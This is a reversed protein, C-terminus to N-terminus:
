HALSLLTFATIALLCLGFNATIAMGSSSSPAPAVTSGPSATSSSVNAVPPLPPDVVDAIELPPNPPNAPSQAVFSLQKLLVGPEAPIIAIEGNIDVCPSGAAGFCYQLVHQM